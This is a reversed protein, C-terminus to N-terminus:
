EHRRSAVVTPRELHVLEHRAISELRRNARTEVDGGLHTRNRLTANQENLRTHNSVLEDKDNNNGFEGWRVNLDVRLRLKAGGADGVIEDRLIRVFRVKTKHKPENQFHETTIKALLM